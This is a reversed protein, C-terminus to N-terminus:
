ILMGVRLPPQHLCVLMARRNEIYTESFALVIGIAGAQVPIHSLLRSRGRAHEGRRPVFSVASEIELM